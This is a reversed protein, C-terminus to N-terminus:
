APAGEPAPEGEPAGAGGPGGPPRNPPPGAPREGPVHVHIGKVVYSDGEKIGRVGARDGVKVDAITAEARGKRVKTDETVVYTKTFGDPSKLTISTASVATVEGRQTFGTAFGDPTRVTGEGHIFPGGPGPRGPRRGEPRPPRASASAGPEPQEGPAVAPADPETDESQAANFVVAQGPAPDVAQTATVALAGGVVGVATWGAVKVATGQLPAWM